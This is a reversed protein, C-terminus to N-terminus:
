CTLRAIDYLPTGNQIMHHGETLFRVNEPGMVSLINKYEYHLGFYLQSDSLLQLFKLFGDYNMMYYNDDTSIDGETKCNIMFTNKELPLSSLKKKFLLDFRTIIIYDYAVKNSVMYQNFLNMVSMLSYLNSRFKNKIDCKDIYTPNSIGYRIPDLNKILNDIDLGDTLYTHFFVDVNNDEFINIKYNELSNKYDIRLYRDLVSNYYKKSFAIGKLLLAIKM